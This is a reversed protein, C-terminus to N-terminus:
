KLNHAFIKESHVTLIHTVKTTVGRLVFYYNPFHMPLFLKASLYPITTISFIAIGIVGGASGCHEPGKDSPGHPCKLVFVVEPEPVWSRFEGDLPDPVSKIVASGVCSKKM